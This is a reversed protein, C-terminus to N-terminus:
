NPKISNPDKEKPQFLGSYAVPDQLIEKAKTVVPDDKISEEVRFETGKMIGVLELLLTRRVDDKEAEFLM